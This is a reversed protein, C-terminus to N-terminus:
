GDSPPEEKCMKEVNALAKAPDKEIYKVVMKNLQQAFDPDLSKLQGIIDSYDRAQTHGRHLLKSLPRFSKNSQLKSSETEEGISAGLIQLKQALECLMDNVHKKNVGLRYEGFVLM